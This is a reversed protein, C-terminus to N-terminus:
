ALGELEDATMPRISDQVYLFSWGDPNGREPVAEVMPMRGDGAVCVLAPGDYQHQRGAGLGPTYKVMIREGEQYRYLEGDVYTAGPMEVEVAGFAGEDEVADFAGEDEAVQEALPVDPRAGGKMRDDKEPHTVSFEMLSLAHFVVSALHHCESEPDTDEGALWLALHREMAEASLSWAYGKAWNHAEYKRAGFAYLRAVEALPGRPLLSFREAKTGKQGGTDPDTIRTETMGWLTM